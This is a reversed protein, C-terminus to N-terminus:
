NKVKVCAMVGVFLLTGALVLSAGIMLWRKTKKSM